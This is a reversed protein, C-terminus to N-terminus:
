RVSVARESVDAGLPWRRPTYELRRPGCAHAHVVRYRRSRACFRAAAFDDLFRGQMFNWKPYTREKDNGICTDVLICGDRTELVLAHISIVIHKRADVFPGIWDIAALADPTAQPLLYPGLSATTLEVVQTIKVDGVQWTLMLTEGGGSACLMAFVATSYM